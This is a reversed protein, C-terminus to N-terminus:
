EKIGRPWIMFDFFEDGLLITSIFLLAWTFIINSLKLAETEPLTLAYYNICIGVIEFAVLLWINIRKPIVIRMQWMGGPQILLPLWIISFILIASNM